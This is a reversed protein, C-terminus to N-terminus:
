LSLVLRFGLSDYAATPRNIGRSSVRCYKAGEDKAGGRNVRREYRGETDGVPNTQADGSYHDYWDSCWEWVNGTMDHIGLENPRKKGVAHTGEGLVYANEYYWAVDNLTNSGSYKYGKSKNGGRAAYEWEAETPLRYTKGTQLNLKDLFAQVDSWSVREVPLDDGKFLSPNDGMVDQWLKQTVEYKGIAYSSLTVEHAPQEDSDADSVQEATAGMTFTGGAVTVMALSDVVEPDDESCSTFVASATTLLLCFSLIIKKTKM